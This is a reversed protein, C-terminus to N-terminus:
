LGSDESAAMDLLDLKAVYSAGRPKSLWSCHWWDKLGPQNQSQKPLVHEKKTAAVSIM